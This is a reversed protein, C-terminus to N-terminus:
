QLSEHKTNAETKSSDEERQKQNQATETCVKSWLKLLDTFMDILRSLRTFMISEVAGGFGSRQAKLSLVVM